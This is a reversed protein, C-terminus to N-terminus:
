LWRRTREKYRNYEDGFAAAAAREEYPIYWFNAALFFALPALFALWHNAFLGGAVLLLTFGLYMPNRSFRFFRETVLGRPQDFTMIESDNQKFQIRAGILLVLGVFAAFSVEGWPIGTSHVGNGLKPSLFALALQALVLGLFLVPPLLKQM